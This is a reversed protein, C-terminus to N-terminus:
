FLVPTPRFAPEHQQSGQLIARSLRERSNSLRRERVYFM